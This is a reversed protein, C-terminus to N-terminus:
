ASISRAIYRVEAAMVLSQIRKRTTEVATPDTLALHAVVREIAALVGSAALFREYARDDLALASYLTVVFIQAVNGAAGRAGRALATRAVGTGGLSRALTWHGRTDGLADNYSAAHRFVLTYERVDFALMDEM